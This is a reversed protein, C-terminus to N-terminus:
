RARREPRAGARSLRCRPRPLPGARGGAGEEHEPGTRAAGAPSLQRPGAPPRLARAGPEPEGPARHAARRDRGGDPRVRRGAPAARGPRLRLARRRERRPDEPDPGPELDVMVQRLHERTFPLTGEDHPYDSGWMVRELGVFDSRAVPHRGPHAPQHRHPLEAHLVRHGVEAAGARRRHADRGGQEHPHEAMLDDMQQLFAPIWAFGAETLTFKLDPFREFVGGLIMYALPRQSYFPIELFHVLPMAPAKQYVPGGTGSHTNVVVGLEACKAWVPDLDPHYLPKIWDSTPPVSGVLIGGRLGHEHCWEIDAITDDIDNLFVQGIGARAKPDEAVYDALWRNHAQIGAHRHEYEDPTPRSPSCCSTRSSRRARHQPLGGRRGRRRRAPRRRAARRGLQPDAPRHGQPGQLPEQVEGRWADFDDRYKPDLYERYQAHSGGAHTDASIVIYHDDPGLM